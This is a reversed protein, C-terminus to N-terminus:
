LELAAILASADTLRGIFRRTPEPKAQVLTPTALVGALEALDPREVIDIIDLRYRGSLAEAGVAEVAAITRRSRQPAGAIFLQFVFFPNSPDDGATVADGGEQNGAGGAGHGGGGGDHAATGGLGSDTAQSPPRVGGDSAAPQETM